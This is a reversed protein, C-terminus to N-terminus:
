GRIVVVRSHSSHLRPTGEFVLVFVTTAKPDVVFAAVGARDTRGRAVKVLHRGAIRDLFVVRGQLVHRFTTLLGAIVFMHKRHGAAKVKVVSLHTRLRHAHHKPLRHAQPTAPRHAQPTAPQHAHPTALQHAHSTPLQHAHHTPLRHAHPTSADAAGAAAMAGSTAIVAAAAVSGARTMLTARM